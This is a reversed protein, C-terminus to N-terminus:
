VHNGSNQTGYQDRLGSKNIYDLSYGTPRLCLIHTGMRSGTILAMKEINGTTLM